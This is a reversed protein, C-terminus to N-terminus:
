DTEGTASPKNEPAPLRDDNFEHSDELLDYINDQITGCIPTKFIYYKVGFEGGMRRRKVIKLSM